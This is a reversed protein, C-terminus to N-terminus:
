CRPCPGKGGREPCASSPPGAVCTSPKNTATPQSAPQLALRREDASDRQPSPAMQATWSSPPITQGCEPSLRGEQIRRQGHGKTQGLREEGRSRGAEAGLTPRRETAAGARKRGPPDARDTQRDPQRDTQSDTQSATPKATVDQRDRHCGAAEDATECWAERRVGQGEGAAGAGGGRRRGPFFFVLLLWTDQPRRLCSSSERARFFPARPRLLLGAPPPFAPRGRPNSRGMTKGTMPVAM